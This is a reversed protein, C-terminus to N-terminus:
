NNSPRNAARTSRKFSIIGTTSWCFTQERPDASVVQLMLNAENLAVKMRDPDMPREHAEAHDLSLRRSLWERPAHLVQRWPFRADPELHALQVLLQVLHILRQPMEICGKVKFGGRGVHIEDLGGNLLNLDRSVAILLLDSCCAQLFPM